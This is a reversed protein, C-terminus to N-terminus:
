EPEAVHAPPTDGEEEQPARMVSLMDACLDVCEDCIFIFVSNQPGILHTVQDEQKGCFSCNRHDRKSM